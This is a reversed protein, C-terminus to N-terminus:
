REWFRYIQLRRMKIVMEVTSCVFKIDASM